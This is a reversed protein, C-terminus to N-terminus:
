LTKIMNKESYSVSIEALCEVDENWSIEVSVDYVRKGNIFVEDMLPLLSIADAMYEVGFFSFQSRKDWKQFTIHRDGEQDEEAQEAIPYDPRDVITDIYTEYYFGPVFYMDGLRQNDRYKLHVM